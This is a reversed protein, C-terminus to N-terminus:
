RSFEIYRSKNWSFIQTLMFNLYTSLVHDELRCFVPLRLEEELVGSVGCEVVVIVVM